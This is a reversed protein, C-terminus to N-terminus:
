GGHLREFFEVEVHGEDVGGVEDGGFGANGCGGGVGDGGGFGVLGGADLCGEGYAGIGCVGGCEDEGDDVVGAGGDETLRLFEAGECLCLDEALEL